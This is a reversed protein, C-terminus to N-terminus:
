EGRIGMVDKKFVKTGLSQVYQTWDSAPDPDAAIKALFMHLKADLNDLYHIAIAEPTAPLKPSGFDYQGHHSLILHELVNKVDAPFPQGTEAEVQKVKEEIWIVAMTIHGVLQGENTYKFNVDYTLEGTKGIDHLFLGALVLDLSVEPYRPVVLLALELLNRTHELLGGIYAHHMAMAAPAKRFAEMLKEDTVFAKILNLLNRDKIQRLIAKVREFMAPIDEKTQPIFDSLDIGAPDTPQMADVIFQLSGKYNEVRGKFRVFGGEPMKEYMAETAQWVRGLLQGTRDTLVCHIYLSGNNTTRLDKATILFVQDEVIEGPTMQDIFRRPRTSVPAKSM